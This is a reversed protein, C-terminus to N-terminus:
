LESTLSVARSHTRRSRAPIPAPVKNPLGKFQASGVRLSAPATSRLPRSFRLPRWAGPPEFGEGEAWSPDVCQRRHRTSTDRLTRARSEQQCVGARAITDCGDLTTKQASGTVIEAGDVSPMRGGDRGQQSYATTMFTQQGVHQFHDSNPVTIDHLRQPVGSIRGSPRRASSTAAIGGAVSTMAGGSGGGSSSSGTPHDIRARQRM